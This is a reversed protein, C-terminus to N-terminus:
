HTYHRPLPSKSWRHVRKSAVEPCWPWGQSIRSSLILPAQWFSWTYVNNFSCLSSFHSSYYQSATCWRWITYLWPPSPRRVPGCSKNFVCNTARQGDQVRLKVGFVLRELGAQFTPFLPASPPSIKLSWMSSAVDCCKKNIMRIALVPDKQYCSANPSVITM